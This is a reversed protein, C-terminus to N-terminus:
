HTCWQNPVSIKTFFVLHNPATKSPEEKNKSSIILTPPEEKFENIATKFTYVLYYATNNPSADIPIDNISPELTEFCVDLYPTTKCILKIYRYCLYEFYHVPIIYPLLLLLLLLPILHAHLLLLLLLIPLLLASLGYEQYASRLSSCFFNWFIPSSSAM